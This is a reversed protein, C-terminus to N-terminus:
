VLGQSIDTRDGELGFVGLDDFHRLMGAEADTM